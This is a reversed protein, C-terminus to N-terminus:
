ILFLNLFLSFWRAIKKTYRDNGVRAFGRVKTDDFIRFTNVYCYGCTISEQGFATPLAFWVSLVQFM